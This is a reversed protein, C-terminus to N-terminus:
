NKQGVMSGYEYEYFAYYLLIYIRSCSQAMIYHPFGADDPIGAPIRSDPIGATMLFGRSYYYEYYYYPIRSDVKKKNKIRFGSLSDRIRGAM